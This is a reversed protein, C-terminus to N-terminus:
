KNNLYLELLKAYAEAEDSASVSCLGNHAPVLEPYDLIGFEFVRQIMDFSVITKNSM